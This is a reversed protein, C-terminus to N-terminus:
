NAGCFGKLWLMSYWGGVIATLDVASAMEYHWFCSFANASTDPHVASDPLCLHGSEDLVALGCVAMHGYRIQVELSTCHEPINCGEACSSPQGPNLSCLCWFASQLYTSLFTECAPTPASLVAAVVFIQVLQTM